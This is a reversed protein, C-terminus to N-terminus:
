CSLAICAAVAAWSVHGTIVFTAGSAFDLIQRLPPWQLGAGLGALGGMIGLVVGFATENLLCLGLLAASYGVVAALLQFPLVGILSHPWGQLRLSMIPLLLWFLVVIPLLAVAGQGARALLLRRRSVPLSLTFLVSDAMRGPGWGCSQTMVGNGALMAGFCLLMVTDVWAFARFAEYQRTDHHMPPSMFAILIFVWVA